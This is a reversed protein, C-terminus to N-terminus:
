RGVEAHLWRRCMGDVVLLVLVVAGSIPAPHAGVLVSFAMAAILLRLMTPSM